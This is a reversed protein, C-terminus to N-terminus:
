TETITFPLVRSLQHQDGILFRPDAVKLQQKLKIQVNPVQSQIAFLKKNGFSFEWHLACRIQTKKLAKRSFAKTPAHPDNRACVLAALSDKFKQPIEYCRDIITQDDDAPRFDKCEILWLTDVKDDKDFAILDVGKSSGMSCSFRKRHFETDDWKLAEWGPAFEYTFKKEQLRTM